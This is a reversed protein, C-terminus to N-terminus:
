HKYLRRSIQTNLIKLNKIISFCIELIVKNKFLDRAYLHIKFEYKFKKLLLKKYIELDNHNYSESNLAKKIAIASYNGSLLANGIGEGTIPDILSASDGIFLYRHGYLNKKDLIRKFLIPLKWGKVKDIQISDKFRRSINPYKNIIERIMKKLNSKDKLLKKSTTYIGVNVKGDPLKFIWFYGPLTEKLFYMDILNDNHLGTVNKFHVSVGIDSFKKFSPYKKRLVSNAGDAGVIFKGVFSRVESKAIVEDETIKVENIKEGEFVDINSHKKVESIMFNDFDSRICLFGPIKGQDNQDKFDFELVNNKPTFVRLGYSEIFNVTQLFNEYINLEKPFEKLQNVARESLAGGCVKRRPFTDKDILAIKFNTNALHLALSCGAPGAGIIIIDYEM